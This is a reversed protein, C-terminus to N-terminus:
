GHRGPAVCLHTMEGWFGEDECEMIPENIRSLANTDSYRYTDKDLRHEKFEDPYRLHMIFEIFQKPNPVGRVILRSDAFGGLHLHCATHALGRAEAPSYDLRLSAVAHADDYGLVDVIGFVESYLAEEEPDSDVDVSHVGYYALKAEKLSKGDDSVQYYIQFVAGDTSMQFTYQRDEALKLM